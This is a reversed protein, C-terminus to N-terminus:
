KSTKSLDEVPKKPLENKYIEGPLYREPREIEMEELLTKDSLPPFITKFRYEDPDGVPWNSESLCACEKFWFPPQM